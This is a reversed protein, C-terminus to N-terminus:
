IRVRSTNERSTITLFLEPPSHRWVSTAPIFLIERSINPSWMTASVAERPTPSGSVSPATFGAGEAEDKKVYELLQRPDTLELGVVWIILSM